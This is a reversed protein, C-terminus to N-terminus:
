AYSSQLVLEDRQIRGLTSVVEDMSPRSAPDRKLCAVSLKAIALGLDMRYESLNPDIFKYLEREMNGGEMLSIMAASLLIERGDHMMVVNMGTILELMVVGFAYVDIKPTVLGTELYEPAMYGRTGVFKSSVFADGRETSTALGFNAIKARLNGDLLVNSSKIDKHVYAPDTFNHLYHLGNAVDLAIQVRQIWSKVGPSTKICLWNRLCGNKMYEYVLYYGGDECVGYLRILNFHNIKTLIKVEKWSDKNVKKIAVVEEGLVGRYVSGKMKSVSDFNNTALKLEEFVFDRLVWNANAIGVLVDEPLVWNKKKLAHLKKKRYLFFIGLLICLVLLSTSISLVVGLYLRKKSKQKRAIPTYNPSGITSFHIVTQSSSPEVPLPILITTFPFITPYEEHFGNADLMNKRSVNFRRSLATISDGWFISYTLLYNTGMAIQNSTPCACRLPVAIKFGPLLDREGYANENVLSNCSSLGQYTNNAITYYSDDRSLTVYSSNAQYYQGSCFCNVPVIVEKGTPFVTHTSANNIIALESPDSSTLKSITLVSNYPPQSNFMLFTKCSPEKGNCTYLFNPSSGAGDRNNCDLVSNGSYGCLLNWQCNACGGIGRIEEILLFVGIALCLIVGVITDHLEHALWSPTIVFLVFRSVSFNQPFFLHAGVALFAVWYGFEGRFLNFVFTPLSSMLYAVLLSTQTRSSQRMANLILLAIASITGGWQFWAHAKSNSNAHPSSSTSSKLFDLVLNEM